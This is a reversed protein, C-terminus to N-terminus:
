LSEGLETHMVYQLSCSFHIVKHLSIRRDIIHLKLRRDFLYNLKEWGDQVYGLRDPRTEHPVHYPADSLSRNLSRTHSIKM